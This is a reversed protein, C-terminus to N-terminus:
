TTSSWSMDYILSLSLSNHCTSLSWTSERIKIEFDMKSCMEIWYLQPHCTNTKISTGVMRLHVSLKQKRSKRWQKGKKEGKEEEKPHPYERRKTHSYNFSHYDPWRHHGTEATGNWGLSYTTAWLSKIKKGRTCFNTQIKAIMDSGATNQSRLNRIHSGVQGCLSLMIWWNLRPNSM